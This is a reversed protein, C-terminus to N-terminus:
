SGGAADSVSAPTSARAPSASASGSAVFGNGCILCTTRKARWACGSVLVYVIAAFLTEDPTNATGGGQPRVREPPILPRAIEWLGDPVIWSWTGRGM